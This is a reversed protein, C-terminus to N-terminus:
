GNKKKNCGIEKIRHMLQFTANVRNILVNYIIVTLRETPRVFKREFLCITDYDIRSVINKLLFSFFLFSFFRSIFLVFSPPHLLFICCGCCNKCVSLILSPILKYVLLFPSLFVFSLFLYLSLYLFLSLSLSLSFNTTM